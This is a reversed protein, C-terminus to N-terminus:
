GRRKPRLLLRYGSDIMARGDEILRHVRFRYTSEYWARGKDRSRSYIAEAIEPGSAGQEDGDAAQLMQRLRLKQGPTLRNDPSRLGKALRCLRLLTETRDLVHEDYPIIFATRHHIHGCTSDPDHHRESLYVAPLRVNSAEIRFYQGEPASVPEGSISFFPVLFRGQSAPESDGPQLWDPLATMLLTGTDLEPLWFLPQQQCTLRPDAAFDFGGNKPYEMIPHLSFTARKATPLNLSEYLATKTIRKTNKTVVCFSGHWAM